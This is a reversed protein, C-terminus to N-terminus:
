NLRDGSANDRPTRWFISLVTFRLIAGGFPGTRRSFTHHATVPRSTDFWTCGDFLTSCERFGPLVTSPCPKWGHRYPGGPNRAKAGQSGGLRVEDWSMYSLRISHRLAGRKVM